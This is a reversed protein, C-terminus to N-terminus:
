PHKETAPCKWRSPVPIGLAEIHPERSCWAERGASGLRQCVFAGLLALVVLAVGWSFWALASRRYRRASGPAFWSGGQSMKASSGSLLWEAVADALGKSNAEPRLYKLHSALLIPGAAFGLNQPAPCCHPDNQTFSKLVGSVPDTPDFVNFWETGQRFAPEKALWVRAPWVAAFKELPSGFTLFGHLGAFIQSRYAIERPDAWVPRRPVTVGPRPHWGARAPGALAPVRTKVRMWAEEEIYGAWAYATEMLGNFAVVSGLSHALVYWREYKEEAMALLARVMRRRVSYRPPTGVNDLFDDPEPVFLGPGKREKQNYLKVGAVYNVFTRIWQATELKFIREIIFSFLGISVAGTVAIVGVGFLRARIWLKSLLGRPGTSAPAQASAAQPLASGKKDPYLWVALAWFWFRIQKTLSYPENVDAWWVEHFEIVTIREPNKERVYVRVPVKADWSDAAAHFAGEEASEIETTVATDPRARIAALLQRVQGDLHEFRKQEGIGHVVLV